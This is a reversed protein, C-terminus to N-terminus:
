GGPTLVDMTVTPVGYPFTQPLTCTGLTIVTWYTYQSQDLGVRLAVGEVPLEFESQTLNSLGWEAKVLRKRELYTIHGTRTDIHGFTPGRLSPIASIGEIRSGFLSIPSATVESTMESLRLIHSRETRDIRMHLRGRLDAQLEEFGCDIFAVSDPFGSYRAIFGGKTGLWNPFDHSILPGGIKANDLFRRLSLRWDEVSSLPSADANSPRSARLKTITKEAVQTLADIELQTALKLQSTLATSHAGPQLTNIHTVCKVLLGFTSKRLSRM